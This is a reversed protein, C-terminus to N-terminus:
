YKKPMSQISVAEAQHGSTSQVEERKYTSEKEQYTECIHYKGHTQLQQLHNHQM